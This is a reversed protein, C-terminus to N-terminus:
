GIHLFMVGLLSGVDTQIQPTSAESIKQECRDLFIWSRKKISVLVFVFTQDGNRLDPSRPEEAKYHAHKELRPHVGTRTLIFKM